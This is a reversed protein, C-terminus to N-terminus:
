GIRKMTSKKIKGNVFTEAEFIGDKNTIITKPAFVGKASVSTGFWMPTKASIRVLGSTQNVVSNGHKIQM